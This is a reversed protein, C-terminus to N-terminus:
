EEIEFGNLRLVAKAQELYEPAFYFANMLGAAELVKDAKLDDRFSSSQTPETCFGVGTRLRLRIKM